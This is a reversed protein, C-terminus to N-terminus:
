LKNPLNTQRWTLDIFMKRRGEEEFDNVPEFGWGKYMKALDDDFAQLIILRCAVSQSLNLAHRIVWDRMLIGLGRRRYDIHRAIHGLLIGPIYDHSTTITALKEHEFRGLQSMALTLFGITRKAHTTFIFVKGIKKREDYIATNRLYYNFDENECKFDSINISEELVKTLSYVEVDSFTLPAAASL